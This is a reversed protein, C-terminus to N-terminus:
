PLAQPALPLRPNLACLITTVGPTAPGKSSSSPPGLTPLPAQPSAPGPPPRVVGLTPALALGLQPLSSAKAGPGTPTGKVGATAGFSLGQYGLWRQM